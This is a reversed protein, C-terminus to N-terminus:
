NKNLIEKRYKKRISNRFRETAMKKIKNDPFNKLWSNFNRFLDIMSNESYSILTFYTQIYNDEQSYKNELEKSIKINGIAEDENDNENSIGFCIGDEERTDGETYYQFYLKLNEGISLNYTQWGEEEEKKKAKGWMKM